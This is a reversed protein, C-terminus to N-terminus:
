VAFSQLEPNLSRSLNLAGAAFFDRRLNCCFQFIKSSDSVSRLGFWFQEEFRTIGLMGALFTLITVIIM